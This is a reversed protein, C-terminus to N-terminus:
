VLGAVVPVHEPPLALVGRQESEDRLLGARLAHLAKARQTTPNKIHHAEDIVLTHIGLADFAAQDRVLTDYSALVVDGPGADKLREVRGPGRHVLARLGPAFKALEAAWNDVVSTPAVVVAVGDRSLQADLEVFSM